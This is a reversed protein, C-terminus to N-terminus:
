LRRWEISRSGTTDTTFIVLLTTYTLLRILTKRRLVNGSFFLATKKLSLNAIRECLMRLFGWRPYLRITNLNLIVCCPSLYIPRTDPSVVKVRGGVFRLTSLIGLPMEPGLVAMPIMRPFSWRRWYCFATLLLIGTNCVEHLKIRLIRSILHNGILYDLV